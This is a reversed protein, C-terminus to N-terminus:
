VKALRRACHIVPVLIPFNIPNLSFHDIFTLHSLIRVVWRHMRFNSETKIMLRQQAEQDLLSIKKLTNSIKDASTEKRQKSAIVPENQSLKRIEPTVKNVVVPLKATSTETTIIPTQNQTQSTSNTKSRKLQRARMRKRKEGELFRMKEILKEYEKQSSPPLHKVASSTPTVPRNVVSLEEQQQRINKLFSDLRTEFEANKMDRKESGSATRKTAKRVTKRMISEDDSDSDNNVQIILKNVPKIVADLSTVLRSRVKAKEENIIPINKTDTITSFTPDVENTRNSKDLDVALPEVAEIESNTQLKTNEIRMVEELKKQEQNNSQVLKCRIRELASSVLTRNNDNNININSCLTSSPATENVRPQKKQKIRQVALKLNETLKKKEQEKKKLQVKEEQKKKALSTLLQARLAIEDEDVDHNNEDDLSQPSEAIDMDSSEKEMLLEPSNSIDMDIEQHNVEDVVLPSGLPSLIMDEEIQDSPSYPRQEDKQRKRLMKMRIEDKNKFVASKLAQIRLEEEEKSEVKEKEKNNNWEDRVEPKTKLAMLRLELLEDDNSEEDEEMEVDNDIEIIKDCKRLKNQLLHLKVHRKRMRNKRSPKNRKVSRSNLVSPARIHVMSAKYSDRRLRKVPSKQVAAKRSRWKDNVNISMLNEKAQEYNAIM